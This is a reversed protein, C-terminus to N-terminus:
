KSWQELIIPYRSMQDRLEKLYAHPEGGTSLEDFTKNIQEISFRGQGTMLQLFEENGARVAAVVWTDKWRKKAIPDIPRFKLVLSQIEEMANLTGKDVFHFGDRIVPLNGSLNSVVLPKFKLEFHKENKVGTLCILAQFPVEIEASIIPDHLWIHRSLLPLLNKLLNFAAPPEVDVKGIKGFFTFPSIKTSEELWLLRTDIKEKKGKGRLGRYEALKSVSEFFLAAVVNLTVLSELSSPVLVPKIPAATFFPLVDTQQRAGDLHNKTRVVGPTSAALYVLQRQGILNRAQAFAPPIEFNSVACLACCSDLDGHNHWDTYNGESFGLDKVPSCAFDDHVTSGCLACTITGQTKGARQVTEFSGNLIRFTHRDVDKLLSARKKPWAKAAKAKALNSPFVSELKAKFIARVKDVFPQNGIGSPSVPMPFIISTPDQHLVLLLWFPLRMRSHQNLAVPSYAGIFSEITLRRGILSVNSQQCLLAIDADIQNPDRSIPQADAFEYRYTIEDLKGFVSAYEHRLAETYAEIFLSKVYEIGFINSLAPQLGVSLGITQIKPNASLSAEHDVTEDFKLAPPNSQNRKRKMSYNHHRATLEYGKAFDSFIGQALLKAKIHDFKDLGAHQWQRKGNLTLRLLPKFMDHLLYVSFGDQQSIQNESSLWNGFVVANFFCHVPIPDLLINNDNTGIRATPLLMLELDPMESLPEIEIRNADGNLAITIEPM